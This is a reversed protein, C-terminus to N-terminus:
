SRKTLLRAAEVAYYSLIMDAGARKISNLTELLLTNEKVHGQESLLKIMAYEGSVQYAAIPISPYRQKVAHMLDLNTLAPKIIVMDAGESIDLDVKQMFMKENIIDTRFKSSDIGRRPTKKLSMAEFFPEFLCSDTKVYTMVAVDDLGEADLASRIHAVQGDCMAAPSIVDAGAAAHVLAIRGLMGATKENLVKGKESYVCYEEATYDCLCLNSILVLNEGFERKLKKFIQAHFGKKRLAISADADKRKLVGYVMVAPIGLDVAQGCAKPADALSVYSQGKISPIEFKKGDERIFIPYILDSTTLELPRVLRVMQKSKKIRTTLRM